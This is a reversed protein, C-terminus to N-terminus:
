REQHRRAAWVVGVSGIVLWTAASLLWRSREEIDGLLDGIIAQGVAMAYSFDSEFIWYMLSLGANFELAGFIGYVVWLSVVFGLITRRPRDSQLVAISTLLYMTVPATFLNIWGYVSIKSLADARGSIALGIMLMLFTLSVFGLMWVGGAAVRALQGRLRTTPLSWYYSRERPGEDRWVSMPWFFGMFGTLLYAFFIGLTGRLPTTSFETDFMDLEVHTGGGPGGSSSFVPAKNTSSTILVLAIAAITYIILDRRTLSGLMFLQSRFAGLWSIPKRESGNM